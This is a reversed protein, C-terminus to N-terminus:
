IFNDSVWNQRKLDTKLGSSDSIYKKYAENQKQVEEIGENMTIDESKSLPVRVRGLSVDQVFQGFNGLYPNTGNVNQCKAAQVLRTEAIFLQLNGDYM